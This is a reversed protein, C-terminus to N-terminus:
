SVQVTQLTKLYETPTLGTIKKFYQNFSSKAKFGADYALSLVNVPLDKDTLRQMNNIVHKIRWENIYQYFSKGLHSNLTESVRHKSLKLAAALKDLSIDPDTFLKTQQLHRHMQDAIQEREADTLLLHRQHQTVIEETPEAAKGKENTHTYTIAPSTMSLEQMHPSAQPAVARNDPVGVYRFRLIIICILTLLGYVTSRIAMGIDAHLMNKTFLNILSVLNMLLFCAAIERVLLKEKDKTNPLPHVVRIALLPFIIGLTFFLVTTTNNYIDLVRYGAEPAVTLVSTVTLYGVAGLLFPLFLYWKRIPIMDEKVTKLAYLYLLPGYCFGIFTNMQLRVHTDSVFNYIYFKIALHTAICTILLILLEDAKSRLRNRWLLLAAVLAQFAGIAIIYNM